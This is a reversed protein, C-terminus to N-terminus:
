SYYLTISGNVNAYTTDSRISIGRAALGSYNTNAAAVSNTRNLAHAVTAGTALDTSSNPLAGSTSTNHLVGTAKTSSGNIQVPGPLQTWTGSADYIVGISGSASSGAEYKFARMFTGVAGDAAIEVEMGGLRNAVTSTTGNELFYLSRYLKSTPNTGKTVSPQHLVINQNVSLLSNFTKAGNVTQGGSLYVFGNVGAYTDNAKDGQGTICRIFETGYEPEHDNPLTSVTGPELKVSKIDISGGADVRITFAGIGTGSTTFTGKVLTWNSGVNSYAVSSLLTSRSTNTVGVYGVGSGKIYASYTYTGAYEANTYQVIFSNGGSAATLTICNSSVTLTANASTTKWRDITYNNGTYSTQGRQNIPFIGAGLQSGGGVFYWNALLNEHSTFSHIYNKIKGWLYTLGNLDLYKAM